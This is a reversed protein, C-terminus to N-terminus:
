GPNALVLKQHTPLESITVASADIALQIPAQSNHRELDEPNPLLAWSARARALTWPTQENAELTELAELLAQGNAPRAAPSKELCKRILAAYDKPINAWAEFEPLTETVHSMMVAVHDPKDFLKRGSLLYV